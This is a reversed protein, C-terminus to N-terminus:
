RLPAVVERGLVKIYSSMDPFEFTSFMIQSLGTTKVLDELKSVCSSPQGAVVLYDMINDSVSAAHKARLKGHEYYDYEKAMRDIYEMLDKPLHKRFSDDKAYRALGNAKTAAAGRIMERAKAEDRDPYCIVRLWVDLDEMSRGVSRVGEELQGMAWEVFEAHAGVNVIVGDAVEAALRLSRPGTSAIYIPIKRKCWALKIKKNGVLVDEGGLLKRINLVANKLEQLSAPARHLTHIASDGVGMGLVVRGPSLEDLSAITSATVSIDRTIPNTVGPGLRVTRTRELALTLCVYVDRWILQSDSLWVIGDFGEEEALQPYKAITLSQERTQFGIGAKLNM